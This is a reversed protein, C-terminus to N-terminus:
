SQFAVMQPNPPRALTFSSFMVSWAPMNGVSNPEWEGWDQRRLRTLKTENSVQIEGLFFHRHALYRSDERLSGVLFQFSPFSVFILRPYHWGQNLIVYGGSQEIRPVMWLWGEWDPSGNRHHPLRHHRRLGRYELQVVRHFSDLHYDELRFLSRHPNCIIRCPIFATHMM